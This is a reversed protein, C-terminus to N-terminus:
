NGQLVWRYTVYASIAMVIVTYLFFLSLMKGIASGAEADDAEFQRIEEPPFLPDDANTTPQETTQTETM